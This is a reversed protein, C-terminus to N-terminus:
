AFPSAEPLFSRIKDLYWEPFGLEEAPRLLDLVYDREAHGAPMDDVIYCLAARPQGDLTFAIVPRPHYTAKLKAYVNQLEAHTLQLLLGYVVSGPEPSVNVLPRISLEFGPLTAVERGTPTMGLRAMVEPNILGGYFFGWVSSM